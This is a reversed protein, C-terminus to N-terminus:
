GFASAEQTINEDTCRRKIKTRTNSRYDEGVGFAARSFCCVIVSASRIATNFMFVEVREIAKFPVELSYVTEIFMTFGHKAEWGAYPRLSNPHQTPASAGDQHELWM